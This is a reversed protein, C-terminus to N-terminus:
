NAPFLHLLIKVTKRYAKLAIPEIIRNQIDWMLLRSARPTYPNEIVEKITIRKIDPYIIGENLIKEKDEKDSLTLIDNIHEIKRRYALKEDLEEATLCLPHVAIRNRADNIWWADSIIQVLSETGEKEAIRIIEGFPLKRIEDLKKELDQSKQIIEHRFIQDVAASCAFICCRFNGYVYSYSAEKLYENMLNPVPRDVLSITYAGRKALRQAREERSREDINEIRKTEVITLDRINNKDRKSFDM